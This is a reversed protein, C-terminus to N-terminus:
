PVTEGHAKNHLHAYFGLDEGTLWKTLFIIQGTHQSFHEVVHFIARLKTVNDYAQISVRKLLQETGLPGLVVVAQDVTSRLRQKLTATPIPERASFETDRIRHDPEGGVGHLIWQRVNGSLHLVLNGIANQDESGRTWIQEPTLRDLCSEIRGCLQDLKEASCKLFEAEISM